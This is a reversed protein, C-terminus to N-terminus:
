RTWFNLLKGYRPLNDITNKIELHGVRVICGEPQYWFILPNMNEELPGLGILAILIGSGSSGPSLAPPDIMSYELFLKYIPQIGPNPIVM